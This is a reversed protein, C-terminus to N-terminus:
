TAARVTVAEVHPLEALRRALFDADWGRTLLHAEIRSQLPYAISCREDTERRGHANLLSERNCYGNYPCGRCYREVLADYRDLSARYAPSRMMEWLPTEFLCGLSHHQEYAEGFVYVQGDTNVLLESEGYARRDFTHHPLGAIKRLVSLYYEQIRLLAIPQPDALWHEFLRYM